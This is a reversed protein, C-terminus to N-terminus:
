FISFCDASANQKRKVTGSNGIVVSRDLAEFNVFSNVVILLIYEM